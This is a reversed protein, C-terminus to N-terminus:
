INCFSECVKICIILLGTVSKKSKCTNVFLVYTLLSVFMTVAEFSSTLSYIKRKGNITSIGDCESNLIASVSQQRIFLTM